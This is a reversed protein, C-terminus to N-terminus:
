NCGQEGAPEATDLARPLAFEYIGATHGDQWKIWLAYNGVIEADMATVMQAQLSAPPLVRLDNQEQRQDRCAACPCNRRLMALALVSRRGDAWTIHLERSRKLDIAVPQTAMGDVSQADAGSTM